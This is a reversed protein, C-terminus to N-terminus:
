TYGLVLVLIKGSIDGVQTYPGQWLGQNVEPPQHPLLLRWGDDHDGVDFLPVLELTLLVPWFCSGLAKPWELDGDSILLGESVVGDADKFKSYTHTCKIRNIGSSHSFKSKNDNELQNAYDGRM